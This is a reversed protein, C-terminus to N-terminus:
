RRWLERSRVVARDSVWVKLDPVWVSWEESDSGTRQRSGYDRNIAQLQGARGPDGAELQDSLPAVDRRRLIKQGSDRREFCRSTRAEQGLM